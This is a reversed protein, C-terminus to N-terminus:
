KLFGISEEVVMETAGPFSDETWPHKGGFTHGEGELISLGSNPGYQHLDHAESVPVAEDESGHIILWPVSIQAARTPIDLRAKNFEFDEYFQYKIPMDQKTRANPIIVEGDKKWKDMDAPFRTAFNSVAAWTVLSTIRTDEAAKLIAIGGGRSHGVLGIRSYDIAAEMNHFLHDIVLGLDNLETSYNNLGFSELDAFDMPQDVTTGNYSYNFKVFLFGAEAFRKGVLNFHGWDKFGKFGHSFVVVPFPGKGEPYFVDMLIPNKRSGRIQIHKDIKM